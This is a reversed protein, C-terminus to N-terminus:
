RPCGGVRLIQSAMTAPTVPCAPLSLSSFFLRRPLSLFATAYFPELVFWWVTGFHDGFPELIPGQLGLFQERSAEPRGKADRPRSPPDLDSKDAIKSGMQPGMQPGSITWVHTPIEARISCRQKDNNRDRQFGSPDSKPDIKPTLQPHKLPAGAPLLFKHFIVRRRPSLEIKATGPPRFDAFFSDPFLMWCCSPRLLPKPPGQSRNQLWKPTM